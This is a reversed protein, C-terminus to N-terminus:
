KGKLKLIHDRIAIADKTCPSECNDYAVVACREIVADDHDQLSKKDFITVDNQAPTSALAEEIKDRLAYGSDMHYYDAQMHVDGLLDRLKLNDAQLKNNEILLRSCARGFLGGKLKTIEAQHELRMEKIRCEQEIKIERLTEIQEEMAFYASKNRDIVAKLEAIEEASDQKAALYAKRINAKVRAMKGSVYMDAIGLSFRDKFWQEFKEPDTM